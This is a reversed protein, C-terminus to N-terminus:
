ALEPTCILLDLKDANRHMFQMAKDTDWFLHCSVEGRENEYIGARKLNTLRHENTRTMYAALKSATSVEGEQVNAIHQPPSSSHLWVMM